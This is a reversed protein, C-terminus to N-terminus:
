NFISQNYGLTDIGDGLYLSDFYVLRKSAFDLIQELNTENSVGLHNIQNSPRTPWDSRERTYIVDPIQTMFETFRVEVNAYSLPAGDARLERYRAELEDAYFLMFADFLDNGRLNAHAWEESGNIHWFGGFDYYVPTYGGSDNKFEGMNGDWAMGWTTDLDYANPSWVTGDYTSWLVNKISNDSLGCICHLFIIYDLTGGVDLYNGIQARFADRKARKTDLSVGNGKVPAYNNIVTRIVNNFSNVIWTTNNEDPAYEVEFDSGALTTPLWSNVDILNKFTTTNKSNEASFLLAETPTKKMGFLWNDKPINFTYLGFYTDNFYLMVPFGDVAGNHIMKDQYDRPSVVKSTKRSEVIDSWLRATVINRASTVDIWNAKLVYKSESGWSDVVTVKKKTALSDDEYLKITYNKKLYSEAKSTNGQTKIQAICDFAKVAESKVPEYRIPVTRYEWTWAPWGGNHSFNTADPATPWLEKYNIFVRPFDLTYEIDEGIESVCRSCKKVRWGKYFEDAAKTVTWNGYDHGLRSVVRKEIEQCFGCQRTEEGDSTCTPEVSTTWNGWKHDVADIERTLVDSCEVCIGEELGNESCTAERKVTWENVTCWKAFLTVNETIKDFASFPQTFANDYFWGRFIRNGDNLVKPQESLNAGKEVVVSDIKETSNTEFSVIVTNSCAVLVLIVIALLPILLSLYKKKM